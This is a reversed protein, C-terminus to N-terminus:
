AALAAKSPSIVADWDLFVSNEQMAKTMFQKTAEVFFHEPLGRIANEAEFNLNEKIVSAM